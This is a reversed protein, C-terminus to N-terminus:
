RIFVPMARSNGFSYYYGKLSDKIPNKILAQSIESDNGAEVNQPVIAGGIAEELLGLNVLIAIREEIVNM